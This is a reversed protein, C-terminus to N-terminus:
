DNKGVLRLKTFRTNTREASNEGFYEGLMVNLSRKGKSTKFYSERRLADYKNLYGEFFILKLPTRTKTSAIKGVKHEQIRKKLNQTFGIYLKGDKLSQLIYVYYFM